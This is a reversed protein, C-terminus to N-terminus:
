EADAFIVDIGMDQICKIMRRDATHDTVLVDIESLPAISAFTVQNFKSGDAVVIVQDATAIMARKVLADDLNYETLGHELSLGAVGVFAKDVHLEEYLRAAHHGIMSMEHARLIGGTVILRIGSLLSFRSIIENTIPLSSTIITLERQKGLARAVELTTTGVDLAISDGDSVLTAATKGIQQKTQPLHNERLAYPPEYSYRAIKVAGGHVRRLLSQTEMQQLDRRITMDSVELAECLEAVTVSHHEELLRLIAARREAQVKM